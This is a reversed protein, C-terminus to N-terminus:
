TGSPENLDGVSRLQRAAIAESSVIVHAGVKLASAFQDCRGTITSLAQRVAEDSHGIAEATEFGALAGAAANPGAIGPMVSAM